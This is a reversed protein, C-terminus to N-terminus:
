ASSPMRSESVHSSNLRTSKRDELGCAKCWIQWEDPHLANLLAGNKAVFAVFGLKIFQELNAPAIVPFILERDLRSTQATEPPETAYYRLALDIQESKLDCSRDTAILHVDIDPHDTALEHLRPSYWMSALSQPMTLRAMGTRGGVYESMIDEIERLPARLQRYLQAGGQTLEAGGPGRTFLRLGLEAELRAIQHSIASETLDLRQAATRFQGGEAVAAFAVLRRLAPLRM